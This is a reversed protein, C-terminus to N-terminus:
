IKLKIKETKEQKVTSEFTNNLSIKHLYNFILKGGEDFSDKKSSNKNLNELVDNWPLKKDTSVYDIIKM